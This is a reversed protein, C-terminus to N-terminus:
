QVLLAIMPTPAVLRSEPTRQPIALFMTNVQIAVKGAQPKRPHASAESSFSTSQVRAEANRRGPRSWATSALTTSTPRGTRHPLQPGRRVMPRTTTRGPLARSLVANCHYFM